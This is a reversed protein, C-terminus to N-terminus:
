ELHFVEDMVAWWEDVSATDIPKQCPKCVELWKQTLPDATLKNMDDEFSDGIYEFYSFMYFRDKQLQRLYISYNRINSEKIMKLIGPWADAHLKRYEEIKDKRVEIVTGYRKVDAMVNDKASM